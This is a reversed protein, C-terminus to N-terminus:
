LDVVEDTLSLDIRVQPHKALFPPILPAIYMSGFPISANISIASKTRCRM